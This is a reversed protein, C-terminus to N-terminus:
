CLLEICCMCSLERTRFHFRCRQRPAERRLLGPELDSASRACHSADRSGGGKKKQPQNHLKKKVAGKEFHTKTAHRIDGGDNLAYGCSGGGLVMPLIKYCASLGESIM